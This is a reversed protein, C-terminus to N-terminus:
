AARLLDTKRQAVPPVWGLWSIVFASVYFAILQHNKAEPASKPHPPSFRLTCSPLSSPYLLPYTLRQM